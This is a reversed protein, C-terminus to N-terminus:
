GLGMILWTVNIMGRWGVTLCHSYIAKLYPEKEGEQMLLLVKWWSGVSIFVDDRIVSQTRNMEGAALLFVETRAKFPPHTNGDGGSPCQHRLVAQNRGYFGFDIWTRCSTFLRPLGFDLALIHRCLLVCTSSQLTFSSYSFLCPFFSLCCCM